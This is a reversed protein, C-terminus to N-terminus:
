EQSSAGLTRALVKVVSPAPLPFALQTNAYNANHLIQYHSAKVGRFAMDNRAKWMAWITCLLVLSWAKNNVVVHSATMNFHLWHFFDLCYFNSVLTGADFVDWVQRAFACNRFDHLSDEINLSCRSCFPNNPLQKHMRHVNTILKNHCTVWIFFKSGTPVVYNGYGFGLSTM